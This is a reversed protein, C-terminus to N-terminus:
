NLRDRLLGIFINMCLVQLPNNGFPQNNYVVLLKKNFHLAGRRRWLGM